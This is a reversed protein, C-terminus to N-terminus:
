KVLGRHKEAYHQALWFEAEADTPLSNRAGCKACVVEVGVLM